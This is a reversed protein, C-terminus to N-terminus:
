EAPAESRLQVFDGRRDIFLYREHGSGTHIVRAMNKLQEDVQQAAPPRGNWGPLVALMIFTWDRQGAGVEVCIQEFSLSADVPYAKVMMPRLAGEGALDLATGDSGAAQMVESCLVCTLLM